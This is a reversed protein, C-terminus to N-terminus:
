LRTWIRKLRIQVFAFLLIKWTQMRKLWIQFFYIHHINQRHQKIVLESPVRTTFNSYWLIRVKYTYSLFSFLDFPHLGSESLLSRSLIKTHGHMRSLFSFLDFPHLGSKSLLSRNLIKTHGHMRSLFSFLDFSHMDFCKWMRSARFVMLDTPVQSGYVIKQSCNSVSWSHMAM